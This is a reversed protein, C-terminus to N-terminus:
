GRWFRADNAARHALVRFCTSDKPVFTQRTLLLGLPVNVATPDLGAQGFLATLTRGDSVEVFTSLPLTTEQSLSVARLVRALDRSQRTGVACMRCTEEITATGMGIARAWLPVTRPDSTAAIAAVVMETWRAALPSATFALGVESHHSLSVHGRVAHLAHRVQGILRDCQLPKEIVDVAGARMAAVTIPVTLHGSIILFRHASRLRVALDLGSGDPLVYDVIAIHADISSALELTRKISGASITRFDALGLWRACTQLIQADDDVVLVSAPTTVPPRPQRVM